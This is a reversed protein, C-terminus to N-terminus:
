KETITLGHTSLPTPSIWSSRAAFNRKRLPSNQGVITSKKKLLKPLPWKAKSLVEIAESITLYHTAIPLPTTTSNQDCSHCRTYKNYEIYLPELSKLVTTRYHVLYLMRFSSYISQCGSKLARFFFSLLSFSVRM